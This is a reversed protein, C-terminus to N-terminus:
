VVGKFMLRTQMALDTPQVIVRKLIIMAMTMTVAVVVVVIVVCGAFALQSGQDNHGFSYLSLERDVLHQFRLIWEPAPVNQLKTM